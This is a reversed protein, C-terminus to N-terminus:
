HGFDRSAEVIDRLRSDPEGSRRHASLTVQRVADGEDIVDPSGSSPSEPSIDVDLWQDVVADVFPRGWEIVSIVHPWDIDVDDFEVRSGIRYADIHVLPAQGPLTRQHDRAVIFTPSQVPSEVSLAEGIGRTLTTKGAGLPGTLVVVDGVQLQTALWRGFQEMQESTAVTVTSV